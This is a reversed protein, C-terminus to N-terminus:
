LTNKPIIFNWMSGYCAYSVSYEEESHNSISLIVEGTHASFYGGLINKGESVLRRMTKVVADIVDQDTQKKSM